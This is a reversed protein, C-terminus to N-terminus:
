VVAPITLSDDDNATHFVKMCDADVNASMVPNNIVFILLSDLAGEDWKNEEM